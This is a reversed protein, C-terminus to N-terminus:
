ERNYKVNQIKNLVRRYKDTLSAITEAIDVGIASM